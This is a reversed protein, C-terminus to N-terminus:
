RAELEELKKKANINEPNLKLSKRYNEIALDTEGIEMCAEAYSDYANSSEPYLVTNLRFVEAALKGNGQALLDYGNGNLTEEVIAPDEPSKKMLAKYEEVAKDFNGETLWEYPVNVGEQMRPYKFEEAKDKYQFVINQRGDTPNVKFAFPTRREKRVFLNNGVKVVEMPEWRLYKFFLRGSERYVTIVEDSEYAYRGVVIDVESDTIPMRDYSPVYNDWNYALAVSRILEDIFAPHNSNTLVVVGYGKDRHAMLQSSFGEDWGGHGFYVDEEFKNIGFGLGYSDNVFPTLMRKVTEQSLVGRGAGNFTEQVEIAFRALDEATTWLGAAAMEPYTHRKGKTPSGDPLYGAAALRLWDGTLPQEYTSSTMTLPSLVWENLIEPFTRGEVDILMQQMICYGGGSYRWSEEPVKDVYIRQTNSPPEGNLVQVLTPVPLDPSYGPFGHVTVGGTHSLLHALTVKKQKTFENEELKWSKLFHNVDEDLSVKGLEVAKLAGYAAVPKSISGAQFLTRTTVPEQTEKDTVGYAKTWAVKGDHIVAISVGPVGYHAMREEITWASDGQIYVPTTLHTEVNRIREEVTTGAPTCAQLLLTCSGLSILKNM